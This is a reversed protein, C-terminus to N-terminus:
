GKWVSCGGDGAAEPHRYFGETDVLFRPQDPRHPVTMAPPSVTLRLALPKVEDEQQSAEAQRNGANSFHKGCPLGIECGHQVKLGFGQCFLLRADTFGQRQDAAGAPMQARM